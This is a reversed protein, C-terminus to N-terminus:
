LVKRSTKTANGSNLIDTERESGALDNAKLPGFPTPLDVVTLIM